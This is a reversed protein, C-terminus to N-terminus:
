GHLSNPQAVDDLEDEERALAPELAILAYLAPLVLSRQRNLLGFNAFSSFTMSYLLLLILCYLIFPYRRFRKFALRISEFRWVILGVVVASELSALLQLAGKSEWPFPRLLVTAVGNPVSLPSLSNSGHSFESGGQSTRATEQDLQEQISDVSLNQIGLFKAGATVTLIVLVAVAVMGVPRTLISGGKGSKGGGIRGVFYPVAAALTVLALLHPRVIYLLWGGGLLLPIARPFLGQYVLSTAWAVAGLGLQMLAEKGISSPWFVISPAFMMFIFFLRRNVFPVADVLARYWFYSGIFALLGFFFFGGVISQGFLYYTVGTFWRIFNTAQLDPLDPGKPGGTWQTVLQRGFQDYIGADGAGNYANNFTLYRGYTGALKALLGLLLLNPLWPEDSHVHVARQGLSVVGAVGAAPLLWAGLGESGLLRTAVIAAGILSLCVVLAAQGRPGYAAVPPPPQRTPSSTQSSETSLRSSSRSASRTAVAEERPPQNLPPRRYAWWPAGPISRDLKAARAM